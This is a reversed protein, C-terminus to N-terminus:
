VHARGIQNLTLHASIGRQELGDLLREYFSFGAENWAGQGQPQVRPWAVSFRYANVGMAAMLDLDEEYRHYHDCALDGNSGDAIAGPQACFTDWISPARGDVNHAGEIQYASTAVGWIFDTPFDARKPM